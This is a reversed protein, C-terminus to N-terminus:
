LFYHHEERPAVGSIQNEAKYGGLTRELVKTNQDTSQWSINGTGQERVFLTYLSKM